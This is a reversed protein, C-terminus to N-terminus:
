SYLMSTYLYDVGTLKWIFINADDGDWNVLAMLCKDNAFGTKSLVLLRALDKAMETNTIAYRVAGVVIKM